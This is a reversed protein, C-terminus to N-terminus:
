EYKHVGAPANTQWEVTAGTAGAESRQWRLQDLPEDDAPHWRGAGLRSPLSVLVLCRRRPPERM